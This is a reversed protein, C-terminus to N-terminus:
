SAKLGAARDSTSPRTDANAPAHVIHHVAEALHAAKWGDVKRQAADPTFRATATSSSASRKRTRSCGHFSRSPSSSPRTKRCTSRRSRSLFRRTPAGGALSRATAFDLGLADALATQFLAANGTLAAGRLSAYTSGTPANVTAAREGRREAAMM